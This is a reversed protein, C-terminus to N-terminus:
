VDLLTKLSCSSLYLLLYCPTDHHLRVHHIILRLYFMSQGSQITTWVKITPGYCLVYHHAVLPGKSNLLLLVCHHCEFTSNSWLKIPSLHLSLTLVLTQFRNCTAVRLQQSNLLSTTHLVLPPQVGPLYCFELSQQLSRAPSSLRKPRRGLSYLAFGGSTKHSSDVPAAATAWTECLLLAHIVKLRQHWLGPSQVVMWRLWWSCTKTYCSRLVKHVLFFVVNDMSVCDLCCFITPM